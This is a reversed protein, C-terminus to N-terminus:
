PRACIPRRLPGRRLPHAVLDCPDVFTTGGLDPSRKFSRWTRFAIGTDVVAIVVGKAGPRHAAILNAWGEPANVGHRPLFNWQM